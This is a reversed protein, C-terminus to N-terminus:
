HRLPLESFKKMEISGSPVSEGEGFIWGSVSCEALRAFHFLVSLSHLFFRWFLIIVIPNSGMSKRVLIYHILYAQFQRWLREAV